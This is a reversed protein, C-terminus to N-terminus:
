EPSDRYSRDGNAILPAASRPAPEYFHPDDERRTVVDSRCEVGVVRFGVEAM